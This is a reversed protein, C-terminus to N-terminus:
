ISKTLFSSIAMKAIEEEQPYVFDKTLNIKSKVFESLSKHINYCRIKKPILTEELPKSDDPNFVFLGKQNIINLNQRKIEVIFPMGRRNASLSHLGWKVFFPKSREIINEILKNKTTINKFKPQSLDEELIKEFNDLEDEEIIYISFYNDIDHNSKISINETAFYLAIKLDTTFDLLPTNGGYHQLFSLISISYSKIGISDYLKELVRNKVKLAYKVQAKIFDLYSLAPKISSIEYTLWARQGSTFLKYKAENSGRFFCKNASESRFKKIFHDLDEKNDIKHSTFKTEKEDM